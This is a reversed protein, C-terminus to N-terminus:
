VRERCSARGIEFGKDDQSLSIHIHPEGNAIIGSMSVIEIWGEKKIFKDSFSKGNEGEEVIHYRAKKLSGIGSVIIGNKIEAQKIVEKISLLLDDGSDLAVVIIDELKGGNFYRM